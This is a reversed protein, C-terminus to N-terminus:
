ARSKTILKEIATANCFQKTESNVSSSDFLPLEIDCEKKLLNSDKRKTLVDRLMLNSIYWFALTLLLIIIVLMAWGIAETFLTYPPLNGLNFVVAFIKYGLSMSFVCEDPNQGCFIINHTYLKPDLDAANADSPVYDGRFVLHQMLNTEPTKRPDYLAVITAADGKEFKWSKCDLQLQRLHVDTKVNPHPESEWQVKGECFDIGANQASDILESAVTDVDDIVLPTWANKRAYSSGLAFKQPHGKFVIIREAGHNHVWTTMFEGSTTLPFSHWHITAKDKPIHFRVNEFFNALNFRTMHLLEKEPKRLTYRYAFETYWQIEPSGKVRLDGIRSDYTFLPGMRKGYGEPFSKFANVVVGGDKRMGYQDGHTVML